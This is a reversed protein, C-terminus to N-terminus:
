GKVQSSMSIRLAFLKKHFLVIKDIKSLFLSNDTEKREILKKYLVSLGAQALNQVAPPLVQKLLTHQPIAKPTSLINKILENINRLKKVM